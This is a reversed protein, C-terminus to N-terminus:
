ALEVNVSKDAVIGTSLSCLETRDKRFPKREIFYDLISQLDKADHEMRSKRRDNHLEEAHRNSLNAIEQLAKHMEGCAPTSMCYVFWVLSKVNNNHGTAALFPLMQHLSQLYLTWNGSRSATILTRLIKIMDMYMIWLQASRYPRMSEHWKVMM